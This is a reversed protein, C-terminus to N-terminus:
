CWLQLQGDKLDSSWNNRYFSCSSSNQTEVLPSIFIFNVAKGKVKLCFGFLKTLQNHRPDLGTSEGSSHKQGAAVCVLSVVLLQLPLLTISITVATEKNKLNLSLICYTHTRVSGRQPVQYSWGQQPYAFVDQLFQAPPFHLSHRHEGSYRVGVSLRTEANRSSSDGFSQECVPLSSSM